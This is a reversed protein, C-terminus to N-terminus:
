GDLLPTDAWELVEVDDGVSLTGDVSECVLKVGFYPLGKGAGKARRYDRLTALPQSTFEGKEHDM